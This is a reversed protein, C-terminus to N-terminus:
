VNSTLVIPTCYVPKVLKLLISLAVQTSAPLLPAASGQLTNCPVNFTAVPVDIGLADNVTCLPVSDTFPVTPATVSLPPVSPPLPVVPGTVRLPPVSDGPLEIPVM